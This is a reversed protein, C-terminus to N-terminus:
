FRCAYRYYENQALNEALFLQGSNKPARKRGGRGNDREVSNKEGTGRWLLVLVMLSLVVLSHVM